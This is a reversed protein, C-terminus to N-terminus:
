AMERRTLREGALAQQRVAAEHERTRHQQAARQKRAEAPQVRVQTQGHVVVEEQADGRV